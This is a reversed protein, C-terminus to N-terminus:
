PTVTNIFNLMAKAGSSKDANTIGKTIKLKAADVLTELLVTGAVGGTATGAATTQAKVSDGVATYDGFKAGPFAVDVDPSMAAIEAKLATVQAAQADIEAVLQDLGASTFRVGAINQVNFGGAVVQDTTDVAVLNAIATRAASIDNQDKGGDLTGNPEDHDADLTEFQAKILIQIAEAEDMLRQLTGVARSEFRVLPAVSTSELDQFIADLKIKTLIIDENDGIGDADSDQFDREDFPAPDNKFTGGDNEVDFTELGPVGPNVFNFRNLLTANDEADITALVQKQLTPTAVTDEIQGDNAKRNLYGKVIKKFRRKRSM